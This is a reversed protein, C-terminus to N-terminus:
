VSITPTRAGGRRSWSIRGTVEMAKGGVTVSVAVEGNREAVGAADADALIRIGEGELIERIAISVDEDERPILYPSRQVITV